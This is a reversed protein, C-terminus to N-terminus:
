RNEDSQRALEQMLMSLGAAATHISTIGTRVEPALEKQDLLLESNGLIVMLANVIRHQVGQLAANLGRGGAALQFRSFAAAVHVETAEAGTSRVVHGEGSIRVPMPGSLERPLDFSFEISTNPPVATCARFLVGSISIVETTGFLWEGASNTRYQLPFQVSFRRPRSNFSLLNAM